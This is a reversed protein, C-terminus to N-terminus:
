SRPMPLAAVGHTPTQKPHSFVQPTLQSFSAPPGVPHEWWKATGAWCVPLQLVCETTTDGTAPFRDLGPWATHFTRATIIRSALNKCSYKLTQPLSERGSSLAKGSSTYDWGEELTLWCLAAGLHPDGVRVHPRSFVRPLRPKKDSELDCSSDQSGMTGLPSGSVPRGQHKGDEEDLGSSSSHLEPRSWVPGPKAPIGGPARWSLPWSVCEWADWPWRLPCKQPYRYLRVCVPASLGPCLWWRARLATARVFAPSVVAM